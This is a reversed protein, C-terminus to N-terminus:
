IKLFPIFLFFDNWLEFMFVFYKEWLFFFGLLLTKNDIIIFISELFYFHTVTFLPLGMGQWTADGTAIPM